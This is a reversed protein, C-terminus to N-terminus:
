GKNILTFHVKANLFHTFELCKLKGCGGACNFLGVADGGAQARGSVDDLNVPM